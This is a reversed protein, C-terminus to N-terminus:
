ELLSVKYQMCIALELSILSYAINSVYYRELDIINLLENMLFACSSSAFFVVLLFGIWSRINFTMFCRRSCNNLISYISMMQLSFVNLRKM